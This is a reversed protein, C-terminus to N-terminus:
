DKRAEIRIDRWTRQEHTQPKQQTVAAFGARRLEEILHWASWGFAYPTYCERRDVQEMDFAYFGRVGELYDAESGLRGAELIRAACQGIDPLEIILTGQPELLTLLRGFLERAQWLNLYSLSHILLAETVSSPAFVRELDRFDLYLDAVVDTSADINVYGPRYDPGCGVNLKLHRRALWYGTGRRALSVLRPLRERRYRAAVKRIGSVLIRPDFYRHMDTKAIM